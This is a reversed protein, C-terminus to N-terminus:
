FCDVEPVLLVLPQSQQKQLADGKRAKKRRAAEVTVGDKRKLRKEGRVGAETRRTRQKIEAGPGELRRGEWLM